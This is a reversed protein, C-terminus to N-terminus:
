NLGLEFAKSVTIESSQITTNARSLNHIDFYTFQSYFLELIVEKIGTADLKVFGQSLAAEGSSICVIVDSPSSKVYFEHSGLIWAIVKDKLPRNELKDSLILKDGESLEDLTFGIGSNVTDMLNFVSLNMEILTYLDSIDPVLKKVVADPNLLSKLSLNKNLFGVSLFTDNIFLVNKRKEYNALLIM